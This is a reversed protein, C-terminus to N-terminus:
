GGIQSMMRATGDTGHYGDPKADVAEYFVARAGAMDGARLPALIDFERDSFLCPRLKGDATLRLRNCGNCFRHSVAAIFGVTGQAGPLRLYTAPGWGTPTNGDAPELRGLGARLTAADIMAIAEDRPIIDDESWGHGLMTATDGIPMCEIFRVHLPRDLTMRAFAALDQGLSRVVVCNVKVPDLAADLAADIGELADDLNGCRTIEHYQDADLTDLSINVRALGAAKLGRAMQPLLIGNTTLAVSEIGEIATLGAVLDCIGRRVLPEGGTLRIHRIGAEAAIAAIKEIEEFRMMAEHSKPVVGQEPMCYRCRLNCRDTVSIRLYDITRGLSDAPM